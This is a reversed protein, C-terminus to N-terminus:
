RRDRRAQAIAHEVGAVFDGRRVRVHGAAVGAGERDGRAGGHAGRVGGVPAVVRLDEAALVFAREGHAAARARARAPPSPQEHPVENLYERLVRLM